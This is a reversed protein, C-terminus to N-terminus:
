RRNKKKRQIVPDMPASEPRGPNGRELRGLIGRAEASVFGELHDEKYAQALSHRAEEVQGRALRLKARVLHIWARMFRRSSDANEPLTRQTEGM